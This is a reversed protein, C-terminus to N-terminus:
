NLRDPSVIKVVEKLAEDINPYFSGGLEEGDEYERVMYSGNTRSGMVIEGDDLVEISAKRIAKRIKMPIKEMFIPKM